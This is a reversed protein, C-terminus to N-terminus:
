RIGRMATVTMWTIPIISTALWLADGITAHHDPM